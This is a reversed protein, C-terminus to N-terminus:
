QRACPHEDFVSSVKNAIEVRLEYNQPFSVKIAAKPYMPEIENFVERRTSKEQSSFLVLRLLLHVISNSSRLSM